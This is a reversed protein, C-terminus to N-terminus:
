PASRGKWRKLTEDVIYTMRIVAEEELTRGILQLGVPCGKFLDTSDAVIGYICLDSYGLTLFAALACLNFIAEDEHNHFKHPPQPVDLEPDVTTVPFVSTTYDM